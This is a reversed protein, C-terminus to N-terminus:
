QIDAANSSDTKAPVVLTLYSLPIMRCLVLLLNTSPHVLSSCAPTTYYIVLPPLLYSYLSAFVISSSFSRLVYFSLSVALHLSSLSPSCSSLIIPMKQSLPPLSGRLIKMRESITTAPAHLLFRPNGPYTRTRRKM